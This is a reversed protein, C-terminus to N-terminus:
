RARTRGVLVCDGCVALQPGPALRYFLCCSSRRFALGPPHPETHLRPSAFLLDAAQWAAPALDSRQRAVQVAASNVASAVNGWVVRASLPVLTAIAETVPALLKDVLLRSWEQGVSGVERGASGSDRPPAPVSLPVPGGPGEQWWLGDPHMDVPCGLVTAGLAPATLRAAMGLHVASAAIRPEVETVDLGGQAALAARVWAIRDALAASPVTLESVPRWPQVPRAGPPHTSVAFFPGLATLDDLM